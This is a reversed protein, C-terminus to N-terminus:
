WGFVPGVVINEQEGPRRCSGPRGNHSHSQPSHAPLPTESCLRHCTNGRHAGKSQDREQNRINDDCGKTQQESHLGSGWIVIERKDDEERTEQRMIQGGCEWEHDRSSSHVLEPFTECDSM